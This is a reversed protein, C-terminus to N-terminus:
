IQILWHASAGRLPLSFSGEHGSKKRLARQVSIVQVKLKQYHRSLSLTHKTPFQIEQQSKRKSFLYIFLYLITVLQRVFGFVIRLFLRRFSLRFPQIGQYM